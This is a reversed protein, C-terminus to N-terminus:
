ETRIAVLPDVGAARRAPLWSALSAVAIVAIVIAAGVVPMNFALQTAFATATRNLAVVSLPLGLVVGLLSLRVGTMFFMRVVTRPRAGLAVRIGIERNRQRVALGVLGYLGISALLL